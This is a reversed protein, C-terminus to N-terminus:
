NAGIEVCQITISGEDFDIIRQTLRRSVCQIAVRLWRDADQVGWGDCRGFCASLAAVIPSFLDVPAFTLKPNIRIPEQHAHEHMWCVDRIGLARFPKQGRM